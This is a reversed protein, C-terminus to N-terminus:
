SFSKKVNLFIVCKLRISVYNLVGNFDGLGQFLLWQTSFNEDDDHSLHRDYDM